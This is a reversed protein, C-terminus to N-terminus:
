TDNYQTDRRGFFTKYCRAQVTEIDDGYLTFWQNASIDYFIKLFPNFFQDSTM